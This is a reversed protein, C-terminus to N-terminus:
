RRRPWPAPRGVADGDRAGPRDRLWEGVLREITRDDAAPHERRLRQRVMREGLEYMDLALRFRRAAASSDAM